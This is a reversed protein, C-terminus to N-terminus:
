RSGVADAAREVAAVIMELDYPKGHIEIADTQGVLEDLVEKNTTTVIVRRGRMEETSMLLKLFSWNEQYPLAVDYILVQPDHKMLFEIFDTRGRKIDVVHTTVVATFGHHQLCERLMETTDENSNMVAIVTSYNRDISNM